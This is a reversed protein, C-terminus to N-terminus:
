PNDTTLRKLNGTDTFDIASSNLQKAGVKSQEVTVGVLIDVLCVASVSKLRPSPRFTFVTSQIESQNSVTSISVM